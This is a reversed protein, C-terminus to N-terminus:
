PKANTGAGANNQPAMKLNLNYAAQQRVHMSQGKQPVNSKIQNM